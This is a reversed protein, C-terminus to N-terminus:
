MFLEHDSCCDAIPKIAIALQFHKAFRGRVSRQVKQKAPLTKTTCFRAPPLMSAEHHRRRPPAHGNEANPPGETGSATRILTEAM